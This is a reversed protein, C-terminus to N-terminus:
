DLALVFNNLICFSAQVLNEKFSTDDVFQAIVQQRNEVPLTIEQISGSEVWTQVMCNLVEAVILFLYPALPCGQRVRRVIKFSPAQSGNVKDCAEADYFLMKTMDIYEVLFGFKLMVQFLFSWDVMDYAKLFDLKLFILSQKSHKAWDMTEHIFFINDLIFQM